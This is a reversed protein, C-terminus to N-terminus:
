YQLERSNLMITTKKELTSIMASLEECISPSHHPGAPPHWHLARWHVLKRWAWASCWPTRIDFGHVCCLFHDKSHITKRNHTCANEPEPGLSWSHPLCLIILTKIYAEKRFRKVHELQKSSKYTCTYLQLAQFPDVTQMIIYSVRPFLHSLRIYLLTCCACM